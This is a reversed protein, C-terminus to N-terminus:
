IRSPYLGMRFMSSDRLVVFSRTSIRDLAISRFWLFAMQASLLLESRLPGGRDWYLRPCCTQSSAVWKFSGCWFAFNVGFRRPGNLIILSIEGTTYRSARGALQLIWSM